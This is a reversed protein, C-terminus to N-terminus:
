TRVRKERCKSLPLLHAICNLLSISKLSNIETGYDLVEGHMVQHRNLENFFEGREKESASIPLPHSFPSLLAHMLADSAIKEVYAAISKKYDKKMFLHHKIVEYCIGDTQALFVPISLEYDGLEHAKFAKSTINKRQPFKEYLSKELSPLREQFYKVLVVEAENVNDNDLAEELERLFPITMNLDIFWGHNGLSLLAKQM